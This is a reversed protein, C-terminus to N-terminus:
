SHVTVVDGPRLSFAHGFELDSNVESTTQLDPSRFQKTMRTEANTMQWRCNGDRNGSGQHGTACRRWCADTIAVALLNQKVAVAGFRLVHVRLNHGAHRLVVDDGGQEFSQNRFVRVIQMGHGSHRLTPVNRLVALGISEM